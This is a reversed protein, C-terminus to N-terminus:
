GGLFPLYSDLTALVDDRGASPLRLVTETIGLSEYHRLKGEDPLTGFPIVSLEAPDRDVRRAAEQLEGMAKAVGAGGIPIWGDGFEAIHEFLIPGPAGGVLVPIGSRGRVQQVPKPWAWSEALRVHEGSFSAVEEGWLEQMALVRERVVARRTAKTGGHDELEEINWGYGVGLRLRGGSCHDITAAEKATVIPDREAMLAIGTGVRLRTTAATMMAMAAFPDLCRLYEEALPEGAPAPTRRSTPIHTHEPLWVSTFGRDEVERALEVPGISRDTLFITVGLDM